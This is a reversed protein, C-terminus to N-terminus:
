GSDPINPRTRILTDIEALLVRGAASPPGGVPVAVSYRVKPERRRLQLQRVGPTRDAIGAPVFGIGLGHAVLQVMTTVDNVEFGIRRQVGAATFWRDMTIRPGWQPPFDVFTQEILQDTDVRSTLAHQPPCILTLAEEALPRFEVGPPPPDPLSTFALDLAGSRVQEVIMTASAQCLRIVVQPHETHFRGLLAPLDIVHPFQMTGVSLSGTLLGQVARVAAHAAAAAALTRRAEVLLARGAETLTVGHTNRTFLQAGLQRELSRISASLGSQVVHLRHAARTFQAEEAVAVFHELQRM